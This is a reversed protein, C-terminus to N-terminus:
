HQHNHRRPATGEAAYGRLRRYRDVQTNTLIGQMTLHASLHAYRLSGQLMGIETTLAALDATSGGGNRFWEDLRAEAAVIAQGLEIAEAQMARFLAVTRARQDASLELSDALELVHKPGPLGNLEAALALGMGAGSLYDELQEESLAKIRRDELGAYPSQQAVTSALPTVMLIAGLVLRARWLSM